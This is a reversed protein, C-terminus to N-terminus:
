AKQARHRDIFKRIYRIAQKPTKADGCGAPGFLEECQDYSIGFHSQIPMDAYLTYGCSPRGTRSRLVVEGYEPRVLEFSRQLDRRSAYHGLVCQPTGCSMGYHLMDFDRPSADQLAVILKELRAFNM